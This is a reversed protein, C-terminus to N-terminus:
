IIKEYVRIRGVPCSLGIHLSYLVVHLHIWFYNSVGDNKYIYYRVVDRETTMLITCLRRM